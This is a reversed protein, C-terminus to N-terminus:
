INSNSKLWTEAAKFSPELPMFNLTIERAIQRWGQNEIQTEQEINDPFQYKNEALPDIQKCRFGAIELRNILDQDPTASLFLFKKRRNTCNILLMTNIISAIQPAAFVHFEDFIFVDFEKDIKNWLKDPSDGSIIYAGRHLYHFIDPNTLIVERQNTITLLAASKKLSENEAYIELDAGSLRFIRPQNEPQFIDIYGQIQSEQDRALENTPYLGIAYFEGQLVQLYAAL